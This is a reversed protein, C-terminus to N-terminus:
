SMGLNDQAHALLLSILTCMSNDSANNIIINIPTSHQHTAEYAPTNTTIRKRWMERSEYFHGHSVACM